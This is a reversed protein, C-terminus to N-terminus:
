RLRLRLHPAPAPASTSEQEQEFEEDLECVGRWDHGHHETLLVEAREVVEALTGTRGHVAALLVYADCLILPDSGERVAVMAAGQAQIVADEQDEVSADAAEASATWVRMQDAFADREVIPSGLLLLLFLM